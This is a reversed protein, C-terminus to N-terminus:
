PEIIEIRAEDKEVYDYYVNKPKYDFVEGTREDIFKVDTPTPNKDLVVGNGFKIKGIFGSRCSAYKGTRITVKDSNCNNILIHQGGQIEGILGGAEGNFLGAKCIIYIDKVSCDKVTLANAKDGGGQGIWGFLGGVNQSFGGSASAKIDVHKAHVNTFSVGNTAWVRGTYAICGAFYASEKSHDVPAGTSPDVHVADNARGNITINEFTVNSMHGSYIGFVGTYAMAEYVKFGRWYYQYLTSHKGNLSFNRLTHGQGDFDFHVDHIPKWEEGTMDIDSTLVVKKNSIKETNNPLWAFEDRDTITYTNTTADFHPEKPTIKAPNWWVEAVVWNNTFTEDITITFSADTTLINGVITTLWNRQIPINTKLDHKAITTTGDLAEFVMHIPTQESRDTMLYDVTLTRNHESLDYNLAYEKQNKDIQGTYSVTGPSPLTEATTAEGTIANIGSFRKCGHYTVKFRDPKELDYLGWDTAVVRVKAFPRKLIINEVINEDNLTFDKTTFFADRSEDNLVDTKSPDKYTINKFDSTDYHLDTTEGQTVFDAWVVAKYKRNPTLRLSFSVPQYSGVVKKIPAIAELVEGSSDVRYIALQYRLDYKDAMDVNTLGGAASSSNAGYHASRITQLQADEPLTLTFTLNAEPSGDPVPGNIVIEDKNQCGALIILSLALYSFIKKM